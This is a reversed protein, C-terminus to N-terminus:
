LSLCFLFPWSTWMNQIRSCCHVAESTTTYSLGYFQGLVIAAYFCYVCQWHPWTSNVTLQLCYTNLECCSTLLGVFLTIAHVAQSGLPSSSTEYFLLSLNILEAGVSNFVLESNGAKRGIAGLFTFTFKAPPSPMREYYCQLSNLHKNFYTSVFLMHVRVHVLVTLGEVIFLCIEINEWCVETRRRWCGNSAVDERIFFIWEQHEKKDVSKNKM